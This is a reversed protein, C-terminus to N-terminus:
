PMHELVKMTEYNISCQITQSKPGERNKAIFMDVVPMDATRQERTQNLSIVYDVPMMKGYSEAAQNLEIHDVRQGGQSSKQGSGSRNTQTASYVLAQESKALGCVEVAVHKQRDYDDKNYTDRRSMLLELYDIVIVKPSFSKTRKLTTILARIHDVSIEEPNFEYIALKAKHTKFVRGVQDCITDKHEHLARIKQQTMAGIVRRATRHASMECTIHLTDLGQKVSNVSNNCLWISKGVNTAALWIIAEGPSPGGDNLAVDLRPFGTKYHVTNLPDLLAQYEDFFWFGKYGADNIRAAGDFIKRLREYDRAHYAAIADDSYLLGYQKSEAWEKITEKVLPVERPDSERDIIELVAKYPQDVTLHRMVKDRLLARTPIVEYKNYLNLIWAIVYNCEMRSFHDPEVFHIISSFMDPFDLAYSIIAEEEHFGFPTIKAESLRDQLIHGNDETTMICGMGVAHNVAHNM